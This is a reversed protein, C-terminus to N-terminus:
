IHILSLSVIGDPDTFSINLLLETYDLTEEFLAPLIEHLKNCQKIFLM